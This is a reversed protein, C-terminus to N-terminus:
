FEEEEGSHQSSQGPGVEPMESDGDDEISILMDKTEPDRCIRKVRGISAKAKDDGTFLLDDAVSLSPEM